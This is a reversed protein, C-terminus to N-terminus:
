RAIRKAEDPTVGELNALTAEVRAVDVLPEAKGTLAEVKLMETTRDQADNRPWLYHVDDIWALGRPFNGEFDVKKDPDYIDDLTLTKQQATAAVPLLSALAATAVVLARRTLRATPIM